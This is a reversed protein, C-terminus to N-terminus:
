QVPGSPTENAHDAGASPIIREFPEPSVSITGRFPYDLQVILAIVVVMATTLGAIVTFHMWASDMGLLATFGVTLLGLFFVVLWVADPIHAGAADIRSRRATFLDNLSRLSEQMVIADGQTKPEFSALTGRLQRLAPFGARSIGGAQQAPWERDLVARIYSRLENRVQNAMGKEAFGEADIYLNQVIGAETAALDSAKLLDEWAAVGIFALLVAYIVAINTVAFSVFENHERRTEARVLRTLVLMVIGSVLIGGLVFVISSVWPSTNYVWDLM